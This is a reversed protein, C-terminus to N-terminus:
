EKLGMWGVDGIKMRTRYKQLVLLIYLKFVYQTKEQTDLDSFSLDKAVSERNTTNFSPSETLIRSPCCNM